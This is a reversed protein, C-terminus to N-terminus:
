VSRRAFLKVLGSDIRVFHDSRHRALSSLSNIVALLYATVIETEKRKKLHERRREEGSESENETNLTLTLTCGSSLFSGRIASLHAQSDLAELGRAISCGAPPIISPLAANM